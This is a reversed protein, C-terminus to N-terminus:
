FDKFNDDDLPIVEDPNVQKARRSVLAKTKSSTQTATLRKRLPKAQAMLSSDVTRRSGHDSRASHASVIASLDAVFKKMEEAQANLEESASASEEANAANQQTVKDMQSVTTNIQEIGQAQDSSAAAIEGVLEGVKKASGSVEDFADNTSKVLAAGDSVKRVTGEILAATNKAAEAARMALNRVEDAVVAFGAGAEGARAAEVAANLALLNTQFAIEDITKIIKSTQESAQSIEQMSGTLQNMSANAKGVVQNAQKMLSDAQGANSANQKTMSAMEELSSSTEEVSAAQQSSGEALSLSAASVQGAAAAVQDSAELLGSIVRNLARTISLSLYIGLFLSVAVGILIMLEFISQFTNSAKNFAANTAKARANNRSILEDLPNMNKEYLNRTAGFSLAQAESLDGKKVLAIVQEYSTKWKGINQVLVKWLADEAPTRPLSDYIKYGEEVNKWEEDLHAYQRKIIEPDKEFCLVREARSIGPMAADITRLGNIGPYFVAAFDNQASKASKVSFYGVVGIIASIVAVIVFGGILKTSLKMRKM